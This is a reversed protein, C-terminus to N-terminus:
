CKLGHHDGNSVQTAKIKLAKLPNFDLIWCPPFLANLDTKGHMDIWKIEVCMRTMRFKHAHFLLCIKVCRLVNCLHGYWTAYNTDIYVM